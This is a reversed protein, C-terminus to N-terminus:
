TSASAAVAGSPSPHATARLASVTVQPDPTQADLKRTIAAAAAGDADPGGGQDGAYLPHLYARGTSRCGSLGSVRQGTNGLLTM